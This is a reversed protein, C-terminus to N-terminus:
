ELLLANYWLQMNKPATFDLSNFLFRVGVINKREGVFELIDQQCLDVLASLEGFVKETQKSLLDADRAGKMKAFELIKTEIRQLQKFIKLIQSRVNLMLQCRILLSKCTDVSVTQLKDLKRSVRSNFLHLLGMEQYIYQTTAIVYNFM